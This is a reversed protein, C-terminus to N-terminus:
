RFIKESALPQIAEQEQAHMCLFLAGVRGEVQEDRHFGATDFQLSLEIRLPM